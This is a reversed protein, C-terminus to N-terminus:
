ETKHTQQWYKQYQKQPAVARWNQLVDSKLRWTFIISCYEFAFTQNLRYTIFKGLGNSLLFSVPNLCWGSSSTPVALLFFFFFFFVNSAAWNEKIKMWTHSPQRLQLLPWLITSCLCTQYMHQEELLRSLPNHVENYYDYSQLGTSQCTVLSPYLNWGHFGYIIVHGPSPHLVQSILFFFLRFPCPFLPYVRTDFNWIEYRCM